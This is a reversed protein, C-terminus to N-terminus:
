QVLYVLRPGESFIPTLKPNPHESLQRVADLNREVVAYRIHAQQLVQLSHNGPFSRMATMVRDAAAPFFGSYGNVIPHGHQLAQLMYLTTDVYDAAHGSANTPLMAVAGPPQQALWTIWPEDLLASPFPERRFRWPTIEFLALLVCAAPLLAAQWPSARARASCLRVLAELGLGAWAAILIQVFAAARYPSRLRDFGPLFRQATLEYPTASGIHLRTGFSLLLAICLAACSYALFRRRQSRGYALGGFVALGCMLAGPYLSRRGPPRTWEPILRSVPTDHPFQLYALASGSGNHISAASRTYGSVARREAALLPAVGLVAIVLGLLAGRLMRADVWPKRLVFPGALAVWLAFFLLYYICSWATAVLWLGLRVIAWPDPERTLRLIECLGLVLPWTACLQLVGLEERLFQLGVFLMGGWTAIATRAGAERLLRRGALGNASLLALLTMNYGAVPGALAALPAFFLGTLGQPESLAFADHAPFFIPADWYHAFGQGLQQANWLLTWLNFYPVTPEGLEGLPMHTFLERTLPLCLLLSLAFYVLAAFCWSRTGRQLLVHGSPSDRSM